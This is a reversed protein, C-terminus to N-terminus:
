INHQKLINYIIHTLINYELEFGVGVCEKTVLDLKLINNYTLM